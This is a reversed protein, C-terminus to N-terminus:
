PHGVPRCRTDPASVAPDMLCASLRRQVDPDLKLFRVGMGRRIVQDSPMGANSWVVTAELVFQTDGSPHFRIRCREGLPLPRGAVFAGGPAIDRIEAPEAGGATLIEAPWAVVRRSHSRQDVRTQLASAAAESGRRLRGRVFWIVIFAVFATGGAAMSIAIMSGDM